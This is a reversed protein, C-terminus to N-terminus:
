GRYYRAPVFPPRRWACRCRGAACWRRSTPASRPTRRPCTARARGGEARDTRVHRQHRRGIPDGAADVLVSGERVPTRDAGVLGVRKTSAPQTAPRDKGRPIQALIRAAGPFGGPREGDARRAKSIAWLLSGEVPTTDDDIDHGYLCLGAELRLSDRAGLGIPKM